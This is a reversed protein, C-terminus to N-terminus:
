QVGFLLAEQVKFVKLVDHRAATLLHRVLFHPEHEAVCVQIAVALNLERAIQVNCHCRARQKKQAAM